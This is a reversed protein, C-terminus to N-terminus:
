LCACQDQTHTHTHTSHCRSCGKQQGRSATLAGPPSFVGLLPRGLSNDGKGQTPLHANRFGSPPATQTCASLEALLRLFPARTGEEQCGKRAPTHTRRGTGLTTSHHTHLSSFRQPSAPIAEYGTLHPKASLFLFQFHGILPLFSM